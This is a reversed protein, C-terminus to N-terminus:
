IKSANNQPKNVKKYLYLVTHQTCSLGPLIGTLNSVIELIYNNTMKIFFLEKKLPGIVTNSILKFNADELTIPSFFLRTDTRQLNNSRSKINIINLNNSLYFISKHLTITTAGHRHGVAVTLVLEDSNDAKAPITALNTTPRNNINVM